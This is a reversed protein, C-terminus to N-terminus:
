KMECKRFMDWEGNVTAFHISFALNSDCTICKGIFICWTTQSPKIKTCGSDFWVEFRSPSRGISPAVYPVVVIVLVPKSRTDSQSKRLAHRYLNAVRHVIPCNSLESYYQPITLLRGEFTGELLKLMCTISLHYTYYTHTLESM